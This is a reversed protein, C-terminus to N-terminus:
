MDISFNILSFFFYVLRLTAIEIHSVFYHVRFSSCYRKFAQKPNWFMIRQDTAETSWGGCKPICATGKLLIWERWGSMNTYQLTWYQATLSIQKSPFTRSLDENNPSFFSLLFLVSCKWSSIFNYFASYLINLYLHWTSKRIKHNRLM